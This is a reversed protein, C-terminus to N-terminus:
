RKWALCSTDASKVTADGGKGGVGVERCPARSLGVVGLSLAYTFAFMGASPGCRCTGIHHALCCIRFVHKGETGRPYLRAGVRGACAKEADIPAIRRSSCQRLSECLRTSGPLDDSGVRLSAGIGIPNDDGIRRLFMRPLVGSASRQSRHRLGLTEILQTSGASKVEPGVSRVYRCMARPYSRRSTPTNRAASQRFIEGHSMWGVLM